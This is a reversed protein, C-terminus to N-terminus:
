LSCFLHTHYVLFCPESLACIFWSFWRQWLPIHRALHGVVCMLASGPGSTRPQQPGPAVSTDEWRGVQRKRSRVSCVSSLLSWRIVIWLMSESLPSLPAPSFSFLWETCSLLSGRYQTQWTQQFVRKRFPLVMSNWIFEIQVLSLCLLIWFM